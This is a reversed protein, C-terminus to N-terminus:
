TADCLTKLFAILAAREESSLHATKGMRDANREILEEISAASGDHFYPPHGVLHKLSPTKFAPNPDADFDLPVPRKM